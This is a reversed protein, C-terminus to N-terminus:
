SALVEGAWSQLSDYQWKIDQVDGTRSYSLWPLKRVRQQWLEGDLGVSQTYPNEQLSGQFSVDRLLYLLYGLAQDSIRPFSLNRIPKLPECLGAESCTSLLGSAMRQSTSASWRGEMKAEVWRIAATRDITPSPRQWRQAFLSSTFERYLPDSLQLHWHCIATRDSVDAPSWLNLAALAQPFADFRHQFNLVLYRVRALTRSGFWREQFAAEFTQEATLGRAAHSWYTLSDDEALGMRLMRTHVATEEQPKTDTM